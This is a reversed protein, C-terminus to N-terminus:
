KIHIILADSDKAELNIAIVDGSKINRATLNTLLEKLRQKTLIIEAIKRDM